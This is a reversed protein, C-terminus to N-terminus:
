IKNGKKCSFNIMKPCFDSNKNYFVANYFDAKIVFTRRVLFLKLIQFVMASRSCAPFSVVYSEHDGHVGHSVKQDVLFIFLSKEHLFNVAWCFFLLFFITELNMQVVFYTKCNM